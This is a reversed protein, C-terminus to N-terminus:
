GMANGFKVHVLPLGFLSAKSRYEFGGRQQEANETELAPSGLKAAEERRIQQQRNNGWFIFGSLVIMYGMIICFVAGVFVGPRSALLVKANLTLLGVAVTFLLALGAAVWSLKVM